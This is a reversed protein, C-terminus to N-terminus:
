QEEQKETDPIYFRPEFHEPPYLDSVKFGKGMNDSVHNKGM